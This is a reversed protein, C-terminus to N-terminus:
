ILSPKEQLFCWTDFRKCCATRSLSRKVPSYEPLQVSLSIFLGLEQFIHDQAQLEPHLLDSLPSVGGYLGIGSGLPLHAPHTSFPMSVGTGLPKYLVRRQVVQSNLYDFCIVRRTRLRFPPTRRTNAM